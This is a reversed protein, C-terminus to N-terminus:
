RGEIQATDNPWLTHSVIGAVMAGIIPAVWFLWLQQLALAEDRCRQRGRGERGELTLFHRAPAM